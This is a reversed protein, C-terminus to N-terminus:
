DETKPTAAAQGPEVLVSRLARFLARSAHPARGQAQERRANRILTRLQQTDLDPHARTLETLASEEVLLRDRWKETEHQLANARQAAVKLGAIRDAIPAADVERMLRGIYQIQRRRAEFGNIRKAEAIADALREPLALADLADPALEVLREGLAQLAHMEKKRQTKSPQPETPEPRV